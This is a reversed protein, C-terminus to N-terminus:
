AEEPERFDIDEPPQSAPNNRTPVRKKGTLEEIINDNPNQGSDKNENNSTQGTGFAWPPGERSARPGRELAALSRRRGCAALARARM